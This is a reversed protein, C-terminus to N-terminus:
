PFPFLFWNARHSTYSNSTRSIKIFIRNLRVAFPKLDKDLLIQTEVIHVSDLEVPSPAAYIDQSQVSAIPLKPVDSRKGAENAAM